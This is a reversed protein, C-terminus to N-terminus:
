EDALGKGFDVAVIAAPYHSLVGEAVKRDVEAESAVVLDLRRSKAALPKPATASPKATSSRPKAATTRM